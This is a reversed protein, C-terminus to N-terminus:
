SAQDATLHCDQGRLSFSFQKPSEASDIYGLGCEVASETTRVHVLLPGPCNSTFSGTVSSATVSTEIRKGCISATASQVQKEPSRVVFSHRDMCGSLTLALAVYRTWNM